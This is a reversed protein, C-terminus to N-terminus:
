PSFVTLALIVAIGYGNVWMGAILLIVALLEQMWTYAGISRNLGNSREIRVVDRLARRRRARRWIRRYLYYGVVGPPILPLVPILAFVTALLATLRSENVSIVAIVLQALLGGTLAVPTFQNWYENRQRGTWITRKFFSHEPGEYIIVLPDHLDDGRFVVGGSEEVVHGAVYFRTGEALASVEKWYVVKPTEDPFGATGAAGGPILYIPVDNLSIGVSFGEKELWVLDDGQVAELCGTFRYRHSEAAEGYRLVPFRNSELVATRFRRWRARVAFAGLGPVLLYFVVALLVSVLLYDVGSM